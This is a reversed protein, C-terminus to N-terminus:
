DVQLEKAAESPRVETLGRDNRIFFLAAVHSTDCWEIGKEPGMVMLATSTADAEISSNAFVTVSALVHAVPKSTRPDIIHSYRTGDYQFSNRWDGSTSVAMDVLPLSRQVLEGAQDPQEIGIKWEAGDPKEGSARIEGGIVVLYSDYGEDDLLESVEDVAYGKAVASLDLYIEPNTKKVAPPQSRVAVQEFGIKNRVAEVEEAMPPKGHRGKPGFGWLNVAPGVTPDFAGDTKKAVQLAFEVVSVTENSVEFWEKSRLQNFRSLESDPDYTSFLSNIKVLRMDVKSQLDPSVEGVVTVRYRTGMTDGSFNNLEEATVRATSGCFLLCIIIAARKNM